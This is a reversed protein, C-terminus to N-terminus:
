KEEVNINRIFEEFEAESVGPKNRTRQNGNSLIKNIVSFKSIIISLSMNDRLWGDNIKVCADFYTKLSLLTEESNAEPYKEKYLKLIKGAASSEKGKNSIYYEAKNYNLYSEQFTEIIRDIFNPKKVTPKEVSSKLKKENNDNEENEENKNTTLQKNTSQQNSTLQNNAPKNTIDEKIQYDEYKCITIISYKNTSQKNIEGTKELRMLCTRISQKSINTKEHISNIGTIVQGRKVKIGRWEGDKHNASLILYIFLRVMGDITFWEWDLFKRHLKTWGEM